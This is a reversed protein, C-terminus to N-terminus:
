VICIINRENKYRTVEQSLHEGLVHSLTAPAFNRDMNYYLLFAIIKRKKRTCMELVCVSEAYKKRLSCFRPIHNLTTPNSIGTM